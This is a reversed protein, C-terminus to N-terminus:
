RLATGKFEYLNICPLIAYVANVPFLLEENADFRDLTVTSEKDGRCVGAVGKGGAFGGFMAANKIAIYGEPGEIEEGFFYFGGAVTIIKTNKM